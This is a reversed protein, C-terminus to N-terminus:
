LTVLPYSFKWFGTSSLSGTNCGLSKRKWCLIGFCFWNALSKRWMCCILYTKKLNQLLSNKDRQWVSQVCLCSQFLCFVTYKMTLTCNLNHCLSNWDGSSLPLCKHFPWTLRGTMIYLGFLDSTPIIAVTQLRVKLIFSSWEFEVKNRHTVVMVPTEKNLIKLCKDLRNWFGSM